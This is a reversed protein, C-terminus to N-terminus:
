IRCHMGPFDNQNPAAYTQDIKGTKHAARLLDPDPARSGSEFHGVSTRSNDAQKGFVAQTLGMGHRLDIIANRIGAQSVV